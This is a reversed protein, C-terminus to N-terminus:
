WGGAYSRVPPYTIVIMMYVDTMTAFRVWFLGSPRMVEDESYVFEAKLNAAYEQDAKIKARVADM